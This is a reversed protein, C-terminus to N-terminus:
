DERFHFLNQIRAGKKAVLPVYRDVGIHAIDKECVSLSNSGVETMTPRQEVVHAVVKKQIEPFETLFGILSGIM